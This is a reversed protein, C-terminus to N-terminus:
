SGSGHLDLITEIKMVFEVLGEGSYSEFISTKSILRVMSLYFLSSAETSSLDM